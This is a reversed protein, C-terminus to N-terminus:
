WRTPHSIGGLRSKPLTVRVTSLEVRKTVKPGFYNRGKSMTDVPAHARSPSTRRGSRRRPGRKTRHGRVTVLAGSGSLAARNARACIVCCQLSGTQAVPLDLGGRDQDRQASLVEGLRRRYRGGVARGDADQGGQDRGGVLLDCGQSTLDLGQKAPM